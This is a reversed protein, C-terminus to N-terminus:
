VGRLDEYIRIHLRDSYRFGNRASFEYVAQANEQVEESTEGLPMCYVIGFTPVQQLFEYVESAEDALSKKSLVFKFYSGTTNRLYQNIVEPKWRKNKEEGSSSMKVSMSFSVNKYISYKEFDIFQTGNTEFYIKHGRSVFYEIAGIMVPDTHHLLPEGGTFVLDPKESNGEPSVIYHELIADVLESSSDYYTWTHKFHKANVAHISDCGSIVTENDLPSTMSCGFGKCTLNCGGTRIFISPVGMRLGEGQLTGKRKGNIIADGFIEDVPLSM